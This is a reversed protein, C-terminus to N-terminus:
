KQFRTTLSQKQKRSTGSLCCSLNSKQSRKMPTRRKVTSRNRRKVYSRKNSKTLKLLKKTRTRSNRKKQPWTNEANSLVIKTSRLRTKVIKSQRNLM